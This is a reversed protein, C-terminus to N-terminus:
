PEIKSEPDRFFDEPEPYWLLERSKEPSFTFYTIMGKACLTGESDFLTVEIDALNRRKEILRARLTLTGRDVYVTKKYKIDMSSTVGSVMLKVYVFWSAIEDMLTAQIGGHLVNHYGQFYDHPNWESRIEDGEEFFTMKLGQPNDPSCGFCRYGELKRFPNAIKRM